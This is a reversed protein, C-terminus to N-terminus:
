GGVGVEVRGRVRGRVEVRGRVRVMRGVKAKIADDDGLEDVRVGDPHWDASGVKTRLAEDCGLEDLIEVRRRADNIARVHKVAAVREGERQRQAKTLGRGVTCADRPARSDGELTVRQDQRERLLEHMAHVNWHEPLDEVEWRYRSLHAQQALLIAWLAPSGIADAKTKSDVKCYKLAHMLLKEAEARTDENHARSLFTVGGPLSGDAMGDLFHGVQHLRDAM